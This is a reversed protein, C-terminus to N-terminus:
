VQITEDNGFMGHGQGQGMGSMSTTAVGYSSSQSYQLINSVGGEDGVDSNSNSGGGGENSLIVMQKVPHHLSTLNSSDRMM